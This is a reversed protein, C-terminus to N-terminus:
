IDYWLDVDRGDVVEQKPAWSEYVGREVCHASLAAVQDGDPRCLRLRLWEAEARVVTCRAGRWTAYPLRRALAEVPYRAARTKAAVRYGDPPDAIAEYVEGRYRGVFHSLAPQVPFYEQDETLLHRWQPGYMRTWARQEPLYTYLTVESGDPTYAVLASGATFPVEAVDATVFEPILHRETPAFGTGLVPAGLRDHPPMTVLGGYEDAFPIAYDVPDVARWRIAFVQDGPEDVLVALDAPTRLHAVDYARYCFGSIPRGRLHAQLQRASIFKIMRTGRRIAASRRIPAVRAVQAPSQSMRHVAGWDLARSVPMVMPDDDPPEGAGLVASVDSAHVFRRFPWRAGPRPNPLFGSGRQEAFLEFAAGRGVEEAPYAAGDFHAELSVAGEAAQGTVTV